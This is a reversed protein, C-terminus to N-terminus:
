LAEEAPKLKNLQIRANRGEPTAAVKENALMEEYTNIIDQTRGGLRALCEISKAYAPAVWETYDEYLVYIRQFYAFAEDVEDLELKCLGICYLAEPTLPGRWERIALLENYADIALGYEGQLRYADGRRKRARGVSRSYGFKMLIEESLALADEYDGEEVLADLNANMVYLMNASVEFNSMYRRYAEHVIDYDKHEVGERAILVLTLSGSSPIHKPQLIAAVYAEREDGETINAFVTKYRLELTKQNSEEAKQLAADLKDLSISRYAAWEEGKYDTIM